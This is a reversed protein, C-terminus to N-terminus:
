IIKDLISPHKIRIISSNDIFIKISCIFVTYDYEDTKYFCLNIAQM